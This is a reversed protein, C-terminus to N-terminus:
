RVVPDSDLAKVQRKLAVLRYSADILEALEQWDSDPRDIDLALWGFPGWYPPKWFRADQRLAPEDLPDPKIIVSMPRDMTAGLIVFIKNPTRFTPRGWAPVEVAGPYRLCLGRVRQTLPHRPDVVEPHPEAV